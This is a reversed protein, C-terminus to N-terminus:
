RDIWRAMVIRPTEEFGIRRYFDRVGENGARIMLQLKRIGRARLWAEAAEVLARGIGEGRRARDTALYYIWGRHGDHGVMLAGVITGDHRAVLVQSAAGDRARRFDEAPDNYSVVLGASRWLAVVATEDSVASNGVPIAMPRDQVNWGLSSLDM